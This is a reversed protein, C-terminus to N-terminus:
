VGKMEPDWIIKHLQVQLTWDLKNKKMFEVIESLEIQGFVPSVYVRARIRQEKCFNLADVMDAASGVVFKVVDFSRLQSFMERNMMHNMGCSKSKYDVTFFTNRLAYPEVYMSGNTEVNIEYDEASLSRFLDVLEGHDRWLPEGGTITVNKSNSIERVKAVIEEVSMETGVDASQAYTTDCYNCRMNCGSFRIFTCLQGARIGEGEISSFIEFVKM